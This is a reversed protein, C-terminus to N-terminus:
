KLDNRNLKLNNWNLSDVESLDLTNNSIDKISRNSGTKQSNSVTNGM